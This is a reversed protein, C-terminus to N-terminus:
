GSQCPFTNQTRPWIAHRIGLCLFGMDDVNTESHSCQSSPRRNHTDVNTEPKMYGFVWWATIRCSHKELVRFFHKCIINTQHWNNMQHVSTSFFIIDLAFTNLPVNYIDIYQWQKRHRPCEALMSDDSTIFGHLENWMMCRHATYVFDAIFCMTYIVNIICAHIFFWAPGMPLLFMYKSWARYFFVCNSGNSLLGM